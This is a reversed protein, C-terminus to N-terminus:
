CGTADHNGIRDFFQFALVGVFVDGDVGRPGALAAVVIDQAAAAVPALSTVLAFAGAAYLNKIRM